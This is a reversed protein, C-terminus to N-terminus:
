TIIIDLDGGSIHIGDPEYDPFLGKPPDYCKQYNWNHQWTPPFPMKLADDLTVIRVPRRRKKMAAAYTKAEDEDDFGFVFEGAQNICLFQWLDTRKFDPKGTNQHERKNKKTAKNTM